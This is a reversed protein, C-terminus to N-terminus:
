FMGYIQRCSFLIGVMGKLFSLLTNFVFICWPDSEFEIDDSPLNDPCQGSFRKDFSWKFYCDQRNQIYELLWPNPEPFSPVQELVFDNSKMLCLGTKSDKWLFFGLHYMNQTLPLRVCYLCIWYKVTERQSQRYLSLLHPGVNRPLQNILIIASSQGCSRALGLTNPVGPMNKSSEFKVRWTLFLDLCQFQIIIKVDNDHLRM